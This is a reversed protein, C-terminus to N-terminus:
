VGNGERHQCINPSKIKPDSKFADLYSVIEMNTNNEDIM